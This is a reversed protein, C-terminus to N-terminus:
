TRGTTASSHMRWADVELLEGVFQEETTEQAKVVQKFGGAIWGMLLCVAGLLVTTRHKNM